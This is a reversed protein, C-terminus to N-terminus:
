GVAVKQDISSYTETPERDNCSILPQFMRQYDEVTGKGIHHETGTEVEEGYERKWAEETIEAYRRAYEDLAPALKTVTDWGGGQSAKAGAKAVVDRLVQPRDIIMCPRLRNKMEMQRRRIETFFPSKIIDILRKNLITDTHFQAFVCPDVEGSATIHLYVRGGSLCGGVLAGDNWFDAILLQKTKRLEIIRKRRYNRQEPTTMLEVDPARGVPMYNFYWGIFCGKRVFYDIFEDSVVLDNNEKTVTVSFGYLGGLKYLEDMLGTVTDFVGDGRRKDTQEEFGEVSFCPIINGLKVIDKALNKKKIYVGNTYVQFIMDNHKEFIAMMDDRIFPEGGTIVAFYMGYEKGESLVRDITNFDLVDKKSYNASYCGYCKLNCRFTPSIVTLLPPEFWHEEIFKNRKETSFLMYNGFLNNVMRKRVSPAVRNIHRKLNLIILKVFDRGEPYKILKLKPEILKSIVGDSLHCLIGAGANLLVRNVKTDKAMVFRRFLTKKYKNQL